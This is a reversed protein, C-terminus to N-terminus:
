KGRKKKSLMRKYRKVSMADNDTHRDIRYSFGINTFVRSPTNKINGGITADVQLNKNFLYAVGGRFIQDAYLDSNITQSELYTSFKQNINYTVTLILSQEPFDTGLRNYNANLILVWNKHIHSQTAVGIRPSFVPQDKANALGIVLFDAFYNNYPYTDDFDLNFGAYVAVAPILNRWKFKQNARWSRIDIESAWRKARKENYKYPDYVLYKAGISNRLIGNRNATTIFGINRELRDFQYTFDWVLELEDRFLGYRVSLDAAYAILESDNFTAHKMYEFQNGFEAQLVHQGVSYAGISESPSNSNITTTYQAITIKFGFLFIAVCLNIIKM